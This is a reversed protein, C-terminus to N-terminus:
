CSSDTTCCATDKSAPDALSTIGKGAQVTVSRFEIGEIIQWPESEYKVFEASSFGAGTFAELFEIETLAGSICGSWLAEDQQLHAPVPQNSVIDSIVARGGEKVVRFLERFLQPKLEAEVLNLV